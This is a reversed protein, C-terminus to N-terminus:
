RLRKKLPSRRILAISAAARAWSSEIESQLKHALPAGEAFGDACELIRAKHHGLHPSLQIGDLAEDILAHQFIIGASEARLQSRFGLQQGGLQCALHGVGAHLKVSPGTIHVLIPDTAQVRVGTDHPDKRAGGLDHLFIM